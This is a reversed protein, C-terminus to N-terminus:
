FSPHLGCERKELVKTPDFYSSESPLGNVKLYNDMDDSDWNLVPCVKLIESKGMTAIQM